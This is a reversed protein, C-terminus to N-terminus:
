DWKVYKELVTEDIAEVKKRHSELFDAMLGACQKKCNGCMRTGDKCTKYVDELESDSDMLHYVFLEYIVCEEPVGGKEKQEALTVRGGTKASMVKKRAEEPEDSLFVASEPVSSSMKGGTLGTIFRHYTSAPSFFSYPNTKRELELLHVKIKEVDDDDVGKLFIAKYGYNKKCDAYGERKLMEVARDIHKEVDENTKVFIGVDADWKGEDDKRVSYVRFSNAVDRTLRIHPDQDIGVPVLTPALGEYEELQVHLIDGIQVLPSFVHSMNTSGDFGYMAKMQSLNIKTPLVFALDKVARRESQFYVQGPELGLAIYNKIYEDIALRKTLSFDMGRAGYSEIDAVSIYVEAGLSQFYIVQDITMKHGLHMKGSPMLGTLIVFPRKEDIARKISDFGRQGFIVGRRFLKTPEPLGEPDFAEIGFQHRLRNYDAYQQSSWPDIRSTM